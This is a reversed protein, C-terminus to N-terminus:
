CYPCKRCGGTGPFIAILAINHSHTLRILTRHDGGQTPVLLGLKNYFAVCLLKEATFQLFQLLASKDPEAGGTVTVGVDLTKRGILAKRHFAFDDEYFALISGKNKGDVGIEVIM